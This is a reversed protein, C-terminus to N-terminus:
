HMQSALLRKFQAPPVAESFFYGQGFDCKAARLLDCQAQTEIGEAIVKLGLRHAMVIISEAIARNGDDHEMDQVFSQDIKLYDIDFRKLYAMSSYGTGFDDIAVQVGADRFELLRAAVTDSAHLLLGETIELSISQGPLGLQSLCQMPDEGGRSLFQAPSRNVSIQFAHGLDRSWELARLAAERLVWDGIMTISGSEEAVPIFEAPRVTGLRPHQWRLLAEAKVIVGSALDVVPQYHVELQHEALASRLENALRLRMHARRDMEETFYAFRNKGANKAAYMAQDAKRRMEEASNADNPFLTIGVSGSLYSVERGLVFPKALADLVRQAVQEVWGPSELPTLIVTFEDGGLRAVTDTDRVCATLRQGAQRLLEDGVDHGLLDNVQKFRDLDIFMLALSSHMRQAKLIEQELRDRFLRRNPLGTLPDFNANRWIMEDARKRESVDTMMGTMRQPRGESDRHAVIGRALMWKYHGGKTLLRFESVFSPTAGRLCDEVEALVRDADEQHLRARWISGDITLENLEFGLMQAWRESVVMEDTEINWDWVGDGAGEVALNLRENSLTLEDQVRKQDTIDSLLLAIRRRGLRGFPFAHVSLWRQVRRAYLVRRESSGTDYVQGLYPLWFSSRGSVIKRVTKGTVNELGTQRAFAPNVESIRYDLPKGSLDFIPDLLCFGEDIAEFLMRYREESKRHAEEARRRASLDVTVALIARPKDNEDLLRNLISTAPVHGGDPRVYVKDITATVGSELVRAVAQLTRPLDAASTVDAVSSGILQNESRGLMKCLAPNVRLFCGDLGIESLGVPANCFIAEFALLKTEPEWNPVLQVPAATMLILTRREGATKAEGLFLKLLRVM